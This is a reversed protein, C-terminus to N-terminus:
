ATDRPLKIYKPATWAPLLLITSTDRLQSCYFSQIENRRLLPGALGQYKATDRMKEPAVQKTGPLTDYYTALSSWLDRQSPTLVYFHPQTM